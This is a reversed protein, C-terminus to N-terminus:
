GVKKIQRDLERRRRERDNTQDLETLAQTLYARARWWRNSELLSWAKAAADRALAVHDRQFPADSM